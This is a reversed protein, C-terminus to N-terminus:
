TEVSRRKRGIKYCDNMWCYLRVSVFCVLVRFRNWNTAAKGLLFRKKLMRRYQPQYMRAYQVMNLYSDLAADKMWKELEPDQREALRCREELTMFLDRINKEKNKQTSISDERIMYHYLRDPIEAIKKCSLLARPTFEVDEHLRGERFRLNQELLFNRRYGYLWAEVSLNREKYHSLLYEHGDEACMEQDLPIRRVSAEWEGEHETGGFCVADVEGYKLITERLRVYMQDSVYDDSDVFLVYSGEAKEIGFNRASSLGGNEKHFTKIQGFRAAMEDCIGSSGDTSGDDVLLIEWADKMNKQNLLSYVCKELYTEVNYVPVVVSFLPAKMESASVDAASSSQNKTEM